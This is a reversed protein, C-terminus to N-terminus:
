INESNKMNMIELNVKLVKINMKSSSLVNDKANKKM